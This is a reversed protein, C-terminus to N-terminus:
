KVKEWEETKGILGMKDVSGKMKLVGKVIEMKCYYTNGSKPDYVKGNKYKGDEYIFGWVNRIGVIKRTNKSADPNELDLKEKGELKHGKPYLPEALKVIEGVYLGNEKFIKIQNGASNVWVGNVDSEEAFISAVSFIFLCLFMMLIKKM